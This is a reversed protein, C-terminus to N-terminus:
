VEKAWEKMGAGARLEALRPPTPRLVGEEPPNVAVRLPRANAEVSADGVAAINSTFQAVDDHVLPVVTTHRTAEAVAWVMAVAATVTEATDPVRARSKKENSPLHRLNAKPFCAYVWM